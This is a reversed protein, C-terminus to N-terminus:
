NLELDNVFIYEKKLEKLQNRFITTIEEKMELKNERTETFIANMVTHDGQLSISKTYKVKLLSLFICQDHFQGLKVALSELYDIDSLYGPFSYLVYPTIYPWTYLFDKMLKRIEHLAEDYYHEAGWLQLMYQQEKQIFAKITEKKLSSPSAKQLKDEQQKISYSRTAVKLFRREKEMQFRKMNAYSEPVSVGLKNSVEL